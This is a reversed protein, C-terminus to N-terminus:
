ATLATKMQALRARVSGDLIQDGVRVSVSGILEPNVTVIPNLKVDPFKKELSKVLATVERATLNFASEIYADAVGAASNKLARFQKAIEALASLRDNEIVALLLGYLEQPVNKGLVQKFLDFIQKDSLKPDQLQLSVESEAMVAALADLTSGITELTSDKQGSVAKWLGQAYPRAITSLEAM